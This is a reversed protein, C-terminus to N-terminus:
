KFVFYIIAITTVASICLYLLKLIWGDPDPENGYLGSM